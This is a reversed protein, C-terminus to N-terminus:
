SELSSLVFETIDLVKIGTEKGKLSEKFNEKCWPCATVLVEAGVEMVEEIRNAASFSSFEPFAVKTGRGAGCCFANERTRPMEVFTAKPIGKLLNRAQFYLGAQGRRRKLPPSVTGMWGREGNWPSWPDCLRSVSCADHYTFRVEQPRRLSLKGEKLAEELVELIHRVEFGLEETKINLMKPYDVKWMRYGEACSVVVSKVGKKRVAEVNREAIAKAEPFMGVSYLVNGCCWEDDLLTFPVNLGNLLRATSLAIETTVFSSSCGVFYLTDAKDEVKIDKTIWKRRNENPAGFHNHRNMINEAVKKHAPLPGFGEKVARIRLSELALEIELDLNRKCGVDCAGCLTCAYLIELLTDTFGIKGEALAVGIRMKGPAGYSDWQKWTMSPCRTSFRIGPMYIHDVWYCGKCKICRTMDYLFNNMDTVDLSLKGKPVRM